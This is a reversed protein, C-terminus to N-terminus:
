SGSLIIPVHYPSAVAVLQKSITDIYDVGDRVREAVRSKRGERKVVTLCRVIIHGHSIIIQNGQRASNGFVGV